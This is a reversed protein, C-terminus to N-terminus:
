KKFWDEDYIVELKGQPVVIRLPSKEGRLEAWRAKRAAKNIPPCSAVHHGKV